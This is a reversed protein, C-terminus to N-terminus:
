GAGTVVADCTWAHDIVEGFEDGRESRGVGCEGVVTLYEGRAACAPFVGEFVEEGFVSDSLLVSAFVVGLGLAFDFSEM